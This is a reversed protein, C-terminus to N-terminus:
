GGMMKEELDRVRLTSIAVAKASCNVEATEWAMSGVARIILCMSLLITYLPLISVYFYCCSIDPPLEM